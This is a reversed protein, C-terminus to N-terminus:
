RVDEEAPTLHQLSGTAQLLATRAQQEALEALAVRYRADTLMQEAELYRTVNALGEEFQVQVLRFSEESATLGRGAVQRQAFADELQLHAQEVEEQVQLWTSRDLAQLALRSARARASRAETAGGDFLDWSLAIGVVWNAESGDFSLEPNDAWVRGFVDLQPHDSADAQDVRIGAQTLRLRSAELESRQRLADALSEPLTGPTNLHRALGDKFVLEPLSSMPLGMLSALAVKSSHVAHRAALRDAETAALRADLSLLDAKLVTGEEFRLQMEVRQATVTEFSSEATQQLLTTGQMHLWVQYTAALLRNRLASSQAMGLERQLEAIRVERKSNGGAYLNYGFSLGAEWNNFTGPDNFDTGAQFGRADITKFLYTSPADARLYELDLGIRPRFAVRSAAIEAEAQAIHAAALDLEPNRTLVMAVATELDIQEPLDEHAFAPSTGSQVPDMLPAKPAVDAPFDEAAPITAVTPGACGGTLPALGLLLAPFLIRAKM